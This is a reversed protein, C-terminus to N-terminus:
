SHAHLARLAVVGVPFLDGVAPSTSARSQAFFLFVNNAVSAQRVLVLVALTVWNAHGKMEGKLSITEAM